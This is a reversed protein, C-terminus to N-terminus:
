AYDDSLNIGLMLSQAQDIFSAVQEIIQSMRFTNRRMMRQVDRSQNGLGISNSMDRMARAQDRLQSGYREALVKAHLYIQFESRLGYLAIDSLRGSAANVAALTEEDSVVVIDQGVTTQYPMVIRLMGQLVTDAAAPIQLSWGPRTRDGLPRWLHLVLHADPRLEDIDLGYTRLTNAIEDADAFPNDDDIATMWDALRQLTIRPERMKVYALMDDNEAELARPIRAPRTARMPEIRPLPPVEEIGVEATLAPTPDDQARPFEPTAVFLLGPVILCGFLSLRFSM